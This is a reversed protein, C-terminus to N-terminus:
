LGMWWRMWHVWVKRSGLPTNPDRPETLEKAYPSFDVGSYQNLLKPLPFNLFMEGLDINVMYYGYSLLRAAMAPYPLWFNAWLVENLGCRTGNYVMRIDSGKEVDFFDMLSKIFGSGAPFVVYGRDLIKQLKKTV